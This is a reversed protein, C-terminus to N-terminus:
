RNSTEFGWEGAKVLLVAVNSSERSFVLRILRHARSNHSPWASFQPGPLVGAPGEHRSQQVIRFTRKRFDLAALQGGNLRPTERRQLDAEPSLGWLCSISAFRAGIATAM